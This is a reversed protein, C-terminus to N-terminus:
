KINCELVHESKNICKTGASMSSGFELESVPIEYTNANTKIFLTSDQNGAFVKSIYDGKSLKIVKNGVTNRSTYPLAAISLRNIKGNETLVILDTNNPYIISLGSVNNVPSINSFTMNGKTSRKLHPIDSLSLRLVKNTSNYLIIDMNPGIVSVNKVYDGNELKSYIIGSLPVTLFDNIDMRKIFGNGTTVCIFFKGKDNIKKLAPEYMVSTINGFVKKSIMHLLTGNSRIDSLPIQHIPLKYVKGQRTFILINETNDVELIIMPKDDRFSGIGNSEVPIKKINNNQTVILKFRGKPILVTDEKPIIRANRPKGYKQKYYLLGETIEDLLAQENTIKYEYQMSLARLNEQEAKYKELYYKSTKKLDMNIIYRCQFPTIHLMDVLTNILESDDKSYNRILNIIEDIRGSDLASVYADMEHLKTNVKKLKNNYYRILTEKRFEIFIDLYERYSLRLPNYNYIVEMNVSVTDQLKTNKYLLDRVFNADSGPRLEIEYRMIDKGDNKGTKDIKSRDTIDSIQPLQKNAVLEEIKDTITDLYTLDPVSKIVLIDKKGNESKEIDIIGRVTFKGFGLRSIKDFDTEIIECEMCTDPVLTIEEEPHQMHYITADIVENINHKPVNVSMGYGIGYAGNILLLPLEVPLYVPEVSKEDYTNEWDVVEPVEKIRALVAEICFPTLRTETYRAASQPDGQFTGWNGKGKLLPINIEFWNTLPKMANYVGADGHPHYKGIVDGYVRASKVNTDICKTDKYAAWVIRRQVPKLGDKVDPIARRRNVYLSYREVDEKYQETINNEIITEM